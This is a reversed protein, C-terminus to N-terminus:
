KMTVKCFQGKPKKALPGDSITLGCTSSNVVFTFDGDWRDRHDPGNPPGTLRIGSEIPRHM